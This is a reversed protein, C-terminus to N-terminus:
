VRKVKGLTLARSLERVRVREKMKDNWMLTVVGGEVAEVSGILRGDSLKDGIRFCTDDSM